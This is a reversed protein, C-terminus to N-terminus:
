EKISRAQAPTLCIYRVGIESLRVKALPIKLTLTCTTCGGTGKPLGKTAEVYCRVCGFTLRASLLNSPVSKVFAMTSRAVNLPDLRRFAIKLFATRVPLVKSSASTSPASKVSTAIPEYSKRFRHLFGVRLPDFALVPSSM